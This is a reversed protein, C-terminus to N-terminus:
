LRIVLSKRLPDYTVRQIPVAEVTGSFVIQYNAILDRLRDRMCLADILTSGALM